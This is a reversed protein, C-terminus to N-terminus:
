ILLKNDAQFSYIKSILIAFLIFIKSNKGNLYFFPIKQCMFLNIANEKYQQKNFFYHFLTTNDM